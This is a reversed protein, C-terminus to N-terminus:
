TKSALLRQWALEAFTARPTKLRAAIVDIEYSPLRGSLDQLRHHQDLEGVISRPLWAVGVGALALQMVAPVLATECVTAIDAGAQTLRPFVHANLIQGFFVNDPFGIVKMVQRDDSQLLVPVMSKEAVPIVIDRHIRVKELLTTDVALPFDATEYAVLIAAQGTMLMAYSEDRNASRLRIISQPNSSQLSRIFSPFFTVSLTHQTAISLRRQSKDWGRVDNRLRRLGRSMEKIDDIHRHIAPSVRAPKSGHEVVSAGLWEEIIRIRRSFAPQSVNRREAAKTLNGTEALAVLDDLWALKM